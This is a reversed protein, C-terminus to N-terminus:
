VQKVINEHLFQSIDVVSKESSLNAYCIPCATIIRDSGTAKLNRIREGSIKQSLGPYIMENPGGCCMTRKGSRSPLVLNSFSRVLDVPVNYPDDRLSFHCAEHMTVQEQVKRFKLKKMYDLYHTVRFDFNKVYVPYQNKLLDYTHPDVTIIEKIGMERFMGAVENAYERFDEEYGLDYLFTGPYPEHDGMYRFEVGAEQLLDAIYRLYSNMKMAMERSYFMGAAKILSPNRSIAKGLISTARSGMRMSMESLKKSYPMIQYMNGTYLLSTSSESFNLGAAWGSIKRNIGLPDHYRRTTSVIMNATDKRYDKETYKQTVIIERSIHSVKGANVGAPCVQVCAFCDLCSYFSDSLDITTKGNEVLDMLLSKGLDVRGRAGKSMTYGSAAYTPCVSECFGCNICNEVEKQLDAVLDESL